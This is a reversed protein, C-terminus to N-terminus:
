TRRPLGSRPCAGGPPRHSRAGSCTLCMYPRLMPGDLWALLASHPKPPDASPRLPQGTALIQQRLLLVDGPLPIEQASLPPVQGHHLDLLIVVKVTRVAGQAQDVDELVTGLEDDIV